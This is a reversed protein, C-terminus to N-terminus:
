DNFLECQGVGIIDQLNNCAYYVRVDHNLTGRSVVAPTQPGTIARQIIGDICCVTILQLWATMDTQVTGIEHQTQETESELSSRSSHLPDITWHHGLESETLSM